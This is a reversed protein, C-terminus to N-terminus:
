NQRLWCSLELLHSGGLSCGCPMRCCSSQSCSTRHHIPMVGADDGLFLGEHENQFWAWSGLCVDVGPVAGSALKSINDAKHDDYALWRLPITAAFWSLATLNTTPSKSTASVMPRHETKNAVRLVVNSSVMPKYYAHLFNLRDTSTAMAGGDMHGRLDATDQLVVEKAQLDAYFVNVSIKEEQVLVSLANLACTGPHPYSSAACPTKNPTGPKPSPLTATHIITPTLDVTSDPDDDDTDYAIELNPDDVFGYSFTPIV